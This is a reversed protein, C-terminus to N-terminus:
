PQSDELAALRKEIETLEFAKLIQSLMYVLRTADQTVIQGFRAHRYVRAMERRVSEASGLNLRRPTPLPWAGAPVLEGTSNTTDNGDAM